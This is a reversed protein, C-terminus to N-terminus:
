PLQQCRAPWEELSVFVRVASSLLPGIGPGVVTFLNQRGEDFLMRPSSGSGHIGRAYEWQYWKKPRQWRCVAEGNNGNFLIVAADDFVQDPWAFRPGPTLGLMQIPVPSDRQNFQFGVAVMPRMVAAFPDRGLGTLEWEWLHGIM